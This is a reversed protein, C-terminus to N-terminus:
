GAALRDAAPELMERTIAWREHGRWAGDIFLYDPSYGEYRFGSRKVLQISAHNGPQINAELRHLRLPGFAYGIVLKIAESMYGRGAASASVWYGLAASQFRGHVINNINIGGVIADDTRDCVVLGVNAPGDFRAVFEGFEEPATPLSMWPHHLGASARAVAIFEAEDARGLPRLAVRSGAPELYCPRVGV